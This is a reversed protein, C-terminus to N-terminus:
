EEKRHTGKLLPSDDLDRKRKEGFENLNKRYIFGDILLEMLLIMICGVLALGLLGWHELNM